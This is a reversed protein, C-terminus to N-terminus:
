SDRMKKAAVPNIDFAKKRLTSRYKVLLDTVAERVLVGMPVRTLRSLEKLFQAQELELFLATKIKVM